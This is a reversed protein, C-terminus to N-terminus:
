KRVYNNDVCAPPCPTSIDTATQTDTKKYPYPNRWRPYAADFKARRNMPM